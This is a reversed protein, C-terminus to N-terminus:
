WDICDPEVPDAGEVACVVEGDELRVIAPTTIMWETRVPLELEACGECTVPEGAPFGDPNPVSYMTTPHPPEDTFYLDGLEHCVHCDLRYFFVIHTGEHWNEPWRRLFQTFELEDWREGVWQDMETLYWGRPAPQRDAPWDRPGDPDDAQTQEDEDDDDREDPVYDPRTLIAVGVGAILLATMIAPLANHVRESPRFIIALVLLTADIGLMVPLPPSNGGFCGCDSIGHLAWETILVVCFAAMMFIAVARAFRASFIMTFFAIAEILLLTVLGYTLVDSTSLVETLGAMERSLDRIWQPLTSPSFEHLKFALGAGIWLPIAIRSVATGVHQAAPSNPLTM